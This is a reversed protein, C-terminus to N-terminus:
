LEEVVQELVHEPRGVRVHRADRRGTFVFLFLFPFSFLGPACGCPPQHGRRPAPSTQTPPDTRLRVFSSLIRIHGVRRFTRLEQIVTQVPRVELSIESHAHRGDLLIFIFQEPYQPPPPWRPDMPDDPIRIAVDDQLIQHLRSASLVSAGNVSLFSAHQHHTQNSPGPHHHFTLPPRLARSNSQHHIRGGSRRTLHARPHGLRHDNAPITPRTARRNPMPPSNMAYLSKRPM